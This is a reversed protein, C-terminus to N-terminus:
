RASNGLNRIIPLIKAKSLDLASTRPSGSFSLKAFNPKVFICVDSYRKTCVTRLMNRYTQAHSFSHLQSVSPCVKGYCIGCKVVYRPWFFSRFLRFICTFSKCKLAAVHAGVSQFPLPPRSFQNSNVAAEVADLKNVILKQQNVLADLRGLGYDSSTCVEDDATSQCNTGAILVVFLSGIM